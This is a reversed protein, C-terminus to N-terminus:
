QTELKRLIKEITERQGGPQRSLSRGQKIQKSLSDAFKMEWETLGKEVDCLAEVLEEDRAEAIWDAM